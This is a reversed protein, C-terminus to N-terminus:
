PRGRRGALVCLGIFTMLVFLGAGSGCPARSPTNDEQQPQGTSNDTGGTQDTSSGNNTNVGGNTNDSGGGPGIGGGTHTGRNPNGVMNGALDQVNAVKITIDGGNVM